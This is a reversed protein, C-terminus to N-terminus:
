TRSFSAIVAAPIHIETAGRTIGAFGVPVIMMPLILLSTFGASNTAGAGEILAIELLVHFVVETLPAFFDTM